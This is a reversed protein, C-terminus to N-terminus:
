RREKEYYVGTRKYSEYVMFDKIGNEKLWKEIINGAYKEKCVLRVTKVLGKQNVYTVWYYHKM